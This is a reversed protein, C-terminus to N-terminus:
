PTTEVNIIKLKTGAGGEPDTPSTEIAVYKTDPSWSPAGVYGKVALLPFSRPRGNLPMITLGEQDQGPIEGSYLISKGSPHWTADTKDGTFSGTLNTHQKTNCDYLWVNWPGMYQRQYIIKEETPSWNPQRCDFGVQTIPLTERMFQVYIRGHGEEDIEHVECAFSLGDPAWSPEYAAHKLFRGIKERKLTNADIMWIEDHGDRDSSYIIKNTRAHWCSGPQSVNAHGDNVLPTLYGTTLDMIYLDSPGKNYGERFRTFCLATGNPSWAPNQLSGRLDIKLTGSLM